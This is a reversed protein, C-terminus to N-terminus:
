RFFKFLEAFVTFLLQHAEKYREIAWRALEDLNIHWETVVLNSQFLATFALISLLIIMFKENRASRHQRAGEERIAQLSTISKGKIRFGDGDKIVEGEEVMSELILTWENVLTPYDPHLLIKRYRNQLLVTAEFVQNKNIKNLEVVEELVQERSPDGFDKRSIIIRPLHFTFCRIVKSCAVSTMSRLKQIMSADDTAFERWSKYSDTVVGHYHTIDFNLENLNDLCLTKPIVHQQKEECWQYVTLNNEEIGSVLYTGHQDAVYVRYCDINHADDGTRPVCSPCPVELAATLKDIFLRELSKM